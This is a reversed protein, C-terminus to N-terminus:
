RRSFWMTGSRTCTNESPRITSLPSLDAPARARSCPSRRSRRPPPTVMANGDGDPETGGLQGQDFLQLCGARDGIGLPQRRDAQRRALDLAVVVGVELHQQRSTGGIPPTGRSSGATPRQRSAGIPKVITLPATCDARRRGLAHM